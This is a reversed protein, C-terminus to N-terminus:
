IYVFKKRERFLRSIVYQRSQIQSIEELDFNPNDPMTKPPYLIKKYDSKKKPEIRPSCVLMEARSNEELLKLHKQKLRIGDRLLKDEIKEGNNRCRAAIMESNSDILKVSQIKSLTKSTETKYQDRKIENEKNKRNKWNYLDDIGRKLNKSKKNIKPHLTMESMERQLKMQESTMIRDKLNEKYSDSSKLYAPKKCKSKQRTKHVLSKSNNNIQPKERLQLLEEQDYQSKKEILRNKKDIHRLELREVVNSSNIKKRKQRNHHKLDNKLSEICKQKILDRNLTNECSDYTRLLGTCGAKSLPKEQSDDDISKFDEDMLHQDIGDSNGISTAIRFHTISDKSVLNTTSKAKNQNYSADFNRTKLNEKEKFDGIKDTQSLPNKHISAKYEHVSKRGITENDFEITDEEFSEEPDEVVTNIRDTLIRATIDKTLQKKKQLKINKCTKPKKKYQYGVRALQSFSM